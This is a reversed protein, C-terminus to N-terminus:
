LINYTKSLKKGFCTNNKEENLFPLFHGIAQAMQNRVFLKLIVLNPQNPRQFASRCGQGYPGKWRIFFASFLEKV